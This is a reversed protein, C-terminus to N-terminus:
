KGRVGSSDPAYSGTSDIFLSSLIVESETNNSITVGNTSGASPLGEGILQDGLWVYFGSKLGRSEDGQVYAIRLPAPLGASADLSYLVTDNWQIYAEKIHLEGAEKGNGVGVSFSGQADWGGAAGNGVGGVTFALSFGGAPANLWKSSIVSCIIVSGPSVVVPVASGLVGQMDCEFEEASRRAQGATAGAYGLARAVNGAILLSAQDNPHLGNANTETYMCKMGRGKISSAVDMLGADASVMTVGEGQALAWERLQRNVENVGQLHKDLYEADNWQYWTPIEIFVVRAAPNSARIEALIAKLNEKIDSAISNTKAADWAGRYYAETATVADNTGIMVFYTSIKGGDVPTVEASTCPVRGLWEALTTNRFKGSARKGVIDTARSGSYASHTNHFVTDGYAVDVNCASHLRGMIHNGHVVGTEEYAIGNDVFLRHMWWRWSINTDRSGHTISDGIFTTKGLQGVAQVEAGAPTGGMLFLCMPLVYGLQFSFFRKM